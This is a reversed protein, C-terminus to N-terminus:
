GHSCRRCGAGEPASAGQKIRRTLEVYQKVLDYHSTMSKPVSVQEVDGETVIVVQRIKIGDGRAALAATLAQIVDSKKVSGQRSKYEVASVFGSDNYMADPKGFVKFRKNFFPKTDSGEDVWMLKGLQALDEKSKIVQQSGRRFNMWAFILTIVVLGILWYEQLDKFLSVFERFLDWM